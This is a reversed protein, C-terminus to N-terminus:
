RERACEHQDRERQDRERPAAPRVGRLLWARPASWARLPDLAAGRALRHQRRQALEARAVIGIADRRHRDLGAQLEAIGAIPKPHDHAPSRAVVVIGPTVALPPRPEGGHERRQHEHGFAGVARGAVGGSAAAAGGGGAGRLPGSTM